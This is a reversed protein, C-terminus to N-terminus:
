MGEQEKFTKLLTNAMLYAIIMGFYIVLITRKMQYVQKLINVYGNLIIRQILVGSLLRM